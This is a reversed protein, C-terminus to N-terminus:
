LAIAAPIAEKPEIPVLRDAPIGTLEPLFLVTEMNSALSPPYGPDLISERALVRIRHGAVGLLQEMARITAGTSYVDDVMALRSGNPTKRQIDRRMEATLSLYKPEGTALRTVPIYEVAPRGSQREVESRSDGGILTIVQVDNGLHRSAEEIFPGSKISPPTVILRPKMKKLLMAMSRAAAEALEPNVSPDPNLWCIAHTEARSGVNVLPLLFGRGDLQIHLWDKGDREEVELTGYAHPISPTSEDGRRLAKGRKAM